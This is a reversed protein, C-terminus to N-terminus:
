LQGLNHTLGTFKLNRVARAAAAAAAAALLAPESVAAAPLAPESVAAAAALLTPESV